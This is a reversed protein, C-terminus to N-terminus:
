TLQKVDIGRPIRRVHRDVSIVRAVGSALVFEVVPAVASSREPVARPCISNERLRSRMADGPTGVPLCGLSPLEARMAASSSNSAEISKVRGDTLGNALGM